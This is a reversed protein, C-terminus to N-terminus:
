LSSAVLRRRRILFSLHIHGSRALPVIPIFEFRRRRPTHRCWRAAAAVAALSARLSDAREVARRLASDTVAWQRVKWEYVPRHFSGMMWSQIERWRQRAQDIAGRFGSYNTESVDLLFVCLPLDLNVALIGLLM